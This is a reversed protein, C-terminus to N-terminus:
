EGERTRVRWLWVFNRMRRESREVLTFCGGEKTCSFSAASELAMNTCSILMHRYTKHALYEYLKSFAYKTKESSRRIRGGGRKCNGRGNEPIVRSLFFNVTSESYPISAVLRTGLGRRLLFLPRTDVTQAHAVMGLFVQSDTYTQFHKAYSLTRTM